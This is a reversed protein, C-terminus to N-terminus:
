SSMLRVIWTRVTGVCRLVADLCLCRMHEGFNSNPFRTLLSMFYNERFPIGYNTGYTSCKVISIEWSHSTTGFHEWTWGPYVWCIYSLTLCDNAKRPFVSKQNNGPSILNRQFRAAIVQFCSQLIDVCCFRWLSDLTEVM